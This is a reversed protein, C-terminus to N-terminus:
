VMSRSSDSGNLTRQSSSCPQSITGRTPCFSVQPIYSKGFNYATRFDMTDLAHFHNGHLEVSSIVVAGTRQITHFPSKYSLEGVGVAAVQRFGVHLITYAFAIGEQISFCEEVVPTKALVVTAVLYFQIGLSQQM